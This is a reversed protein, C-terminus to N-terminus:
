VYVCMCVVAIFASYRHLRAGLRDGMSHGLSIGVGCRACGRAFCDGFVARPIRVGCRLARRGVVALAFFIALSFLGGICVAHAFVGHGWELRRFLWSRHPPFRQENAVLRAFDIGYGYRSREGWHFWFAIRAVGAACLNGLVHVIGALPQLELAPEQPPKCRYAARYQAHTPSVPVRDVCLASPASRGGSSASPSRETFLVTCHGSTTPCGDRGGFGEPRHRRWCPAPAASVLSAPAIQPASVGGRQRVGNCGMDCPAPGQINPM